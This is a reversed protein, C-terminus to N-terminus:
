GRAAREAAALREKLHTMTARNCGPHEPWRGEVGWGRGHGAEDVHGLDWQGIIPKGCRWCNFIEGRAMRNRFHSRIEKHRRGYVHGIKRKAM